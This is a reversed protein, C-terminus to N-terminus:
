PHPLAPVLPSAHLPALEQVVVVVQPASAVALRAEGLPDPQALPWVAAQCEQEPDLQFAAVAQLPHTLWEAGQCRPAVGQGLRPVAEQPLPLFHLVFWKRILVFHWRVM